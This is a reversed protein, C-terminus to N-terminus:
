FDYIFNNVDNASVFGSTVAFVLAIKAYNSLIHLFDSFYDVDIEM